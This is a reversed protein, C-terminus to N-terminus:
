EYILEFDDVWMKSSTSGTFYDGYRSSSGVIIIHTPIRSHAQQVVNGADDKLDRYDFIMEFETWEQEETLILDKYAIVDKGNPDFFTAKSRTDITIPSEADGRLTGDADHGYSEADWTGLAIYISGMDSDGKFLKNNEDSHTVTGPSYKVWGRLGIPRATFPRGFGIIGNTGKIGVFKGTFINGAAFVGVVARSAMLTSTKGPTGEHLEVNDPLTINSSASLLTSGKNGTGWFEAEGVGYPYWPNGLQQWGEFGANPLTPVDETTASIQDSASDGAFAQFQYETLPDLGKLQLTFKGGEAEAAAMEIWAEDGVKRYAFKCVAPDSTDGNASLWAVRGWADVTLEVSPEVPNVYLSWREVRGHTTVYVYRVSSFSTMDLEEFTPSYTSIEAANLKLALLDVSTLDATYKNVDVTATRQVLDIREEGIQGAVKFERPINQEAQITWDYRQYLYLTTCLPNTFDFTGVVPDTLKAGSTYAVNTIEVAQIDTSEELELTVVLNKSDISKQTFGEGEVKTIELEILPYPIDNEICSSLLISLLAIYRVFQNKM